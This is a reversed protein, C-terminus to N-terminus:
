FNENPNETFWDKFYFAANFLSSLSTIRMIFEKDSIEIESKHIKRNGKDIAVYFSAEKEKSFNGRASPFELTEEKKLNM